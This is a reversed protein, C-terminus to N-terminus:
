EENPLPFLSQFRVVMAATQALFDQYMLFVENEHQQLKAIAASVAQCRESHPPREDTKWVSPCHLSCTDEQAQHLAQIIDTNRQM